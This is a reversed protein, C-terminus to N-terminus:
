DRLELTCCKVGGGAKLLESLDIPVPEFGRAAIEAALTEAQAALVVNRGDSVANLGLVAADQPTAVIADPFRAEITRRSAADFASPLYAITEDDLVAVATDLHYYRPDVLRLPVVERGLAAAVEHHARPDSRFGFGALIVDGVALFDGEGENVYTPRPTGAYGNAEFWGLYADAEAARESTAFRAGIARGGVVLGGNAAFVMDPLGAVPDITHVDHGLREYTARLASWQAVALDRDVPQTTDMWPNIAYAVDFHTPPCMLYRRRTATRERQTPLATVSSM